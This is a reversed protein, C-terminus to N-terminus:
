NFLRCNKEEGSLTDKYYISSSGEIKSIGTISVTFVKNERNMLIDNHKNGSGGFNHFHLLDEPMPNSNNHLWEHFWREREKRTEAEYLTASSWIHTKNADKEEFYIQIGDWRLESLKIANESHIIVLTFPEINEFNYSKCFTSADSYDFFDLLVVGRSKRYPPQHKHKEFAGNLLCLTFNNSSTAIWTGNSATDKPFVLVNEGRLYRKPPLAIPREAGEDRNSTLIFGTETKPFYTVTCM